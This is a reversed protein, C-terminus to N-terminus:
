QWEWFHKTLPKVKCFAKSDYKKLYHLFEGECPLTLNDKTFNRRNGHWNKSLDISDFDRNLYKEFARNQNLVIYHRLIHNEPFVALKDGQLKHGGSATNNLGFLRKWARNLRNETPQFFYYRLLDTHYNDLSYDRNPEPLFVFEDFNLVNYGSKDAEEIADRLTLNPKYHEMIEDADHHIIWDHDLSKCLINKRELQESLSFSGRFPLNEVMVIPKGKHKEYLKYSGDTSDNDIIAVDINQNALHPLLIKLYHYENRAAIIACISLDRDDM